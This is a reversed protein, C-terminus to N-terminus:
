HLLEVFPIFKVLEGKQIRHNAPNDVLGDGWAASTLVGSSQNPFLDLGGQPNVRVRLFENRKDPKPTEFDARMMYTAPAREARGQLASIFPKVFLLFTVFSSVPNGPLGMFWTNKSSELDPENPQEFIRGFALPKGPKIAIQWMELRGEADVAPKIHDEEGVSVGGSTIILDHKKSAERLTKRTAELTDPVIGFDTADCGLSKLCALLTDRNSNYIGGPKLPFGPLTLEDGTFFAAVKIRRKVRLHTLGASAAVGLEQPRLFTGARLAVQAAKLDEGCERIWQGVQPVTNIKVQYGVGSADPTGIVECDEQMVVANAGPPISAGTFIRAITKAELQEGVYGAPIRQGVQLITGAVPIDAVNVAYGDMQTNDMPPVDVLSIADEALVRGLAEQVTVLESEQVAKAHALLNQLAEQATKM